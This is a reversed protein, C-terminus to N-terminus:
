LFQPLCPSSPCVLEPQREGGGVERELVERTSAEQNKQSGTVQEGSGGSYMGTVELNRSLARTEGRAEWGRGQKV